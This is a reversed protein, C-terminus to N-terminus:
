CRTTQHVAPRRTVGPADFPSLIMIIRKAAAVRAAARMAPPDAMACTPPDGSPKVDGRPMPGPEATAGVPMGRPAISSADGPTLGVVDPTDGVSPLVGHPVVPELALELVPMDPEVDSKSPPPALAAADPPQAAVPLERAPGAADAEDGVAIPETDDPPRVPIGNPEVSNPAPPRLGGGTTEITLGGSAMGVSLGAAGAGIKLVGAGTVSGHGGVLGDPAM